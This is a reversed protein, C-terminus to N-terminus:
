SRLLNHNGVHFFLNCDTRVREYRHLRALRMLTYIGLHSIAAAIGFLVLHCEGFKLLQSAFLSPQVSPGSVSLYFELM